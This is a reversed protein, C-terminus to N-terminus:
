KPLKVAKVPYGEASEVDYLLIREQEILINVLSYTTGIAYGKNALYQTVFWKLGVYDTYNLNHAEHLENIIEEESIM